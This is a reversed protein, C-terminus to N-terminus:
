GGVVLNRVSSGSKTPIGVVDVRVRTGTVGKVECGGGARLRGM